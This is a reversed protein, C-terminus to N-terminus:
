MTYIVRGDKSTDGTNRGLNNKRSKRYARRKVMAMASDPIRIGVVNTSRNIAM